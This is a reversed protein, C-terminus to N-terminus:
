WFKENAQYYPVVLVGRFNGRQKQRTLNEKHSHTHTHTHTNRTYLHTILHIFPTFSHYFFRCFHAFITAYVSLYLTSPPLLLLLHLPYPITNEECMTVFLMERTSSGLPVQGFLHHKPRLRRRWEIESLTMSFHALNVPISLM